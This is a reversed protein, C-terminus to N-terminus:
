LHFKKDGIGSIETYDVSSSQFAGSWQTDSYILLKAQGEPVEKILEDDIRKEITQTQTSKTTQTSAFSFVHTGGITIEDVGRRIPITVTRDFGTATEDYSTLKLGSVIIDFDIDKFGEKADILNRPLTIILEGRARSELSITLIADDTDIEFELVEGGRIDYDPHKFEHAFTPAIVAGLMVVFLTIVIIKV